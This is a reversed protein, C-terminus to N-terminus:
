GQYIEEVFTQPSDTTLGFGTRGPSTSSHCPWVAAAQNKVYMYVPICKTGFIKM